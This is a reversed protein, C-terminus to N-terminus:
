LPLIIFSFINGLINFINKEITNEAAASNINIFELLYKLIDPRNLISVTKNLKTSKQANIVATYIQSL